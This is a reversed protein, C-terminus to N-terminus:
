RARPRRFGGPARHTLRHGGVAVVESVAYLRGAREIQAHMRLSQDHARELEGYAAALRYRSRRYADALMAALAGVINLVLLNFIATQWADSPPPSTFPLVGLTQAGAMTLFAVTALLTIAICAVSSYAIGTYVPVIAYVGVYAAAALGGAAWIGVTLFAVDMRVRVWAQLRRGWDLRAVLYYPVNILLGVIAAVRILSRAQPTIALLENFLLMLGAGAARVALEQHLARRRRSA